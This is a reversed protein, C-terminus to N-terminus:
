DPLSFIRSWRIRKFFGFLGTQSPDNDLSFWIFVAKGVIHDKPVFGWFRSDQSGHRNDGQMWYYNQKFTYTDTAEGNIIFQGDREELTNNEYAQIVRRYLAINKATLTVTSGEAPITIPGFNDISWPNGSVNPYIPAKSNPNETFEKNVVKSLGGIASLQSFAEVDKDRLMIKLKGSESPFIDGGENYGALILDFEEKVRTKLKESINSQLEFEYATQADEPFDEPQGNIHIVGDIIQLKDGPIGVCRKIYNEKKDLPRTIMEGVPMYPRSYPSFSPDQLKKRGHDRALQYYSQAQFNALVTDGEPWNFVVPDGREVDGFGPLRRYDQSFWRVFAPVTNNTFPLSHHVLPFSIPTMPMRAGYSMKSVFLYDGVMLSKEMSGTPITYAEFTFTRIITAAVVAFLIADGWNGMNRPHGKERPGVYKYKEKFALQPLKLWPLLVMILHNKLDREGFVISLNVNMVILMLLNVGPVLMFLVWWWPKGTIKTWVWINYGPILGEWGKRGAKIFLKWLCGMAVAFYLFLLLYPISM